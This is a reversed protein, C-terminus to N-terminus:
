KFPNPESRLVQMGGALLIARHHCRRGHAPRATHDNSWVHKVGERASARLYKGENHCSNLRRSGSKPTAGSKSGGGFHPFPFSSWIIASAQAM